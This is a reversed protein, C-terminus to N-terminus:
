MPGAGKYPVHVIETGTRMKYLEGVLQHSTGNGASGFNMKGPNAKLYALLDAHTRIGAHKPHVVIVNPVYALVTVPDFDKEINYPLKAYLSEAITHHMAGILFTYGDPAAKAATAAGITGGAGGMNEVYFSQGMSISLKAALPRTFTDVGGGAPFPNILRVPRTPWQAQAAAVTFVALAAVLARGIFGQSMRGRRNNHHHSIRPRAGRSPGRGRASPSTISPRKRAARAVRFAPSSSAWRSARSREWSRSTTSTAWTASASFRARSSPSGRASRCTSISSCSRASGTRTM